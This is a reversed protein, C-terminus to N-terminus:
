RWVAAALVGALKLHLLGIKRLRMVVNINYGSDGDPTSNQYNGPLNNALYFSYGALVVVAAYYIYLAIGERARLTLAVVDDSQLQYEGHCVYPWPMSNLEASYPPVPLDAYNPVSKQLWEALTGGDITHRELSNGLQDYITLQAM